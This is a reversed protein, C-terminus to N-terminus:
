QFHPAPHWSAIVFARGIGWEKVFSHTPEITGLSTKGSHSGSTGAIDSCAAAPGEEPVGADARNRPDAHLLPEM